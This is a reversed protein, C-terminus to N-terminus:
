AALAELHRYLADAAPADLEADVLAAWLHLTRTAGQSLPVLSDWAVAPGAGVYGTTRVFWPLLEGEPQALLLTAPGSERLQTLTLWRGVAGLAREEGAVVGEPTSVRVLTLSEPGVRWFLGGYGAGTRGRTAPSGILLDRHPAHLASRWTLLHAPVGELRALKIERDELVQEAGDPGTWSLRQRLVTREGATSVEPAPGTQTGQNPLLVYGQGDVYSNGGWYTVGDIDVVAASVGYHHRHDAPYTETLVTGSPTRVPHLYPRPSLHPALGSGDHYTAIADAGAGPATLSVPDYSVM